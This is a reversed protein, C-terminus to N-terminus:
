TNKKINLNKDLMFYEGPQLENIGDFFTKKNGFISVYGEILYQNIKEINLPANRGMMLFLTTIESAFYFGDANKHYYLPKEGIRDRSLMITDTMKDFFAFAWM